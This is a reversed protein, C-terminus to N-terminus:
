MNVKGNGITWHSWCSLIPYSKPVLCCCAVLYQESFERRMCLFPADTMYTTWPVMPLTEMDWTGSGAARALSRHWCLHFGRLLFSVWSTYDMCNGDECHHPLNFWRISSAPLCQTKLTMFHIENLWCKNRSNEGCNKEKNKKKIM